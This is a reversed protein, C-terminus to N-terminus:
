MYLINGRETVGNTSARLSRMESNDLAEGVRNIHQITRADDESQKQAVMKLMRHKIRLLAFVSDEFHNRLILAFIIRSMVWCMVLALLAKSLLSVRVTM